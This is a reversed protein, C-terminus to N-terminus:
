FILSGDDVFHYIVDGPRVKGAATKRVEGLDPDAAQVQCDDVAIWCNPHAIVLKDFNHVIWNFNQNSAATPLSPVSTM